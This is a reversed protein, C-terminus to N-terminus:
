SARRADEKEKPNVYVQIDKEQIVIYREPSGEVAYYSGQYRDFFVIYGVVAGWNEPSDGNDKGALPGVEKVIGRCAGRKDAEDPAKLIIGGHTTEEEVEVSVLLNFGTPHPIEGVLLEHLVKRSM